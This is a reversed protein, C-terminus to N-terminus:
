RCDSCSHHTKDFPDYPCYGDIQCPTVKEITMLPEAEAFWDEALSKAQEETYDDADIVYECELSITIRYKM